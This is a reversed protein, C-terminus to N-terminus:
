NKTQENKDKLATKLYDELHFDQCCYVKYELSLLYFPVYYVYYM